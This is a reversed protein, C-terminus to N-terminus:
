FKSIGRLGAPLAKRSKMRRENECLHQAEVRRMFSGGECLAAALCSPPVRLDLGQHKQPKEHKKHSYAFQLPNEIDSRRLLSISL